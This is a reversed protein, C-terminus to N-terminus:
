DLQQVRDVREFDVEEYLTGPPYLQLIRVREHQEAYMRTVRTYEDQRDAIDRNIDSMAARVETIEKEVDEPVPANRDTFRKADTRAKMLKDELSDQRRRLLTIYTNLEETKRKRAREVDEPKEYLRLLKVDEQKQQDVKQQRAEAAAELAKHEALEEPTPAPPVVELLRGSKNLIEYGLAKYEAPIHDKLVVQGDVKFRYLKAAVAESGLLLASAMLSVVGVFKM